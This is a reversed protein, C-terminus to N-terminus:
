KKEASSSAKRGRQERVLETSYPWRQVLNAPDVTMVTFNGKDYIKPYNTKAIAADGKAKEYEKQVEELEKRYDVQTERGMRTQSLMGSKLTKAGPVRESLFKIRDQMEQLGRDVAKNFQAPTPRQLGDIKKSKDM